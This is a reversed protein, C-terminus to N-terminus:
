TSSAANIRALSIIGLKLAGPNKKPAAYVWSYAYQHLFTYAQVVLAM